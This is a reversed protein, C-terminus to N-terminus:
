GVVEVTVNQRHIVRRGTTERVSLILEARYTRDSEVASRIQNRPIKVTLGGSRQVDEGLFYTRVGVYGLKEVRVEYTLLPQGEVESVNVRVPPTQLYHLESGFRGREVGFRDEPVEVNSVTVSGNGPDLALVDQEHTLDVAGVLPGSAVSALVVILVTLPVAWRDAEM